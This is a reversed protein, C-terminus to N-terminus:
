AGCFTIISYIISQFGKMNKGFFLFILRNIQRSVFSRRLEVALFAYLSYVIRSKYTFNYSQIQETNGLCRFIYCLLPDIINENQCFCIQLLLLPKRKLRCLNMEHALRTSYCFVQQMLAHFYRSLQYSLPM